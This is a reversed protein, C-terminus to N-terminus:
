RTCVAAIQTRIPVLAKPVTIAECTVQRVGAEGLLRETPRDTQCGEFFWHWPRRLLWQVWAVLGARAAVHEICICRGGPRLVRRVERLVAVPDSVTCLVLTCIM